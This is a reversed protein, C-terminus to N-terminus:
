DDSPEELSAIFREWGSWARALLQPSLAPMDELSPWPGDPSHNSDSPMTPDEPYVPVHLQTGRALPM